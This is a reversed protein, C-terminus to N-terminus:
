DKRWGQQWPHQRLWPGHHAQWGTAAMVEALSAGKARKLLAIVEAKKNTRDAKSKGGAKRARQAKQAPKSKKPASKRKAPL